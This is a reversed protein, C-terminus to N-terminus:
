ILNILKPVAFSVEDFHVPLCLILHLWQFSQFHCLILTLLGWFAGSVWCCFLCYMLFPCLIHVPMKWLISNLYGVSVRFFFISLNVLWELLFWLSTLIVVVCFDSFLLHQCHHTHTHQPSYGLWGSNTPILCNCSVFPLIFIGWIHSFIDEM